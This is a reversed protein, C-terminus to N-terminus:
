LYRKLARLEDAHLPQETSLSGKLRKVWIRGHKFDVDRRKLRCLETVRLGHYFTLMLMAANRWRYRSQSAGQLLVAFEAENLYDRPREHADV